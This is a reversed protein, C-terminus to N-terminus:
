LALALYIRNNPLALGDLECGIVFFRRKSAIKSYAVAATQRASSVSNRASSLPLSVEPQCKRLGPPCLLQFTSPPTKFFTTLEPSCPVSRTDSLFNMFKVTFYSNM